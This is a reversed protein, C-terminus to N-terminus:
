GEWPQLMTSVNISGIYQWTNWVEGVKVQFPGKSCKWHEFNSYNQIKAQNTREFLTGVLAKPWYITMCPGFLTLLTWFFRTFYIGFAYRSGIKTTALQQYPLADESSQNIKINRSIAIIYPFYFHSILLIRSIEMMKLLREFNRKM